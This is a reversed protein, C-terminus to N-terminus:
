RGFLRAAILRGPEGMLRRATEARRLLAPPQVYYGRKAIDVAIQERAFLQVADQTWRGKVIGGHDYPFLRSAGAADRSLTLFLERRRAARWTGLIEFMWGNEDARIHSKLVDTRWLGAQTSIRYRAQQPIVWFRPDDAWPTFPGASGFSTLGVHAIEPRAAMLAVVEDVFATPVPSRLFYDEQLYLVFPTEIQALGRLVCEGWPLRGENPGQVQACRVAVGPFGAETRETNLLVPAPCDPWYRGFLTFFPEWCDRYGDSTNVFISYRSRPPDASAPADARSTVANM